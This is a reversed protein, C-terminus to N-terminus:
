LALDAQTNNSFRKQAARHNNPKGGTENTELTTEFIELATEFQLMLRAADIM